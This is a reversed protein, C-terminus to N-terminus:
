EARVKFLRQAGPAAYNVEATGDNGAQVQGLSTWPGVVNNATEVRYFKSPQGHVRLASATGSLQITLGVASTADNPSTGATWEEFNSAGDGDNDLNADGAWNPNLGFATEFDNAMGDGDADTAISVIPLTLAMESTTGNADTTTASIYGSVPIANTLQVNFVANGSGPTNITASGIWRQGEGYNSVDPAANAYFDLTYTSNAQGNLSGSISTLFRGTAATLVPFKPEGATTPGDVGFDLALGAVGSGGNNYMSNGRIINGISGERVRIGDYNSSLVNAIRNGEGPNTGGIINRSSGNLLEVGHLFNGRPTLGDARLGIFNGRIVNGNANNVYITVNENGSLVNGAGAEAGGIYNTGARFLTVAGIINPIETQGTADTGVYNGQVKNQTAGPGSLYIGSNRNGSIINGGQPEPIGIQNRAANTLNIGYYANARAASGMVDTGIFNGAVINNSASTGYIFVGSNANSSIVNRALPTVGGVLNGPADIRVGSAGNGRGGPWNNPLLGVVNGQVVSFTGGALHVGNLTNGSIVNGAGAVEGGIVNSTGSIVTVGSLTNGLANSGTADLGIFNGLVVNAVSNSDIAVGSQKNGSIVNRAAPHTGGIFNRQALTLGVGTYRNGINTRGTVDTGLFNGEVRNHTVGNGTTTFLYVGREGNGSIVNRAGPETGGILNHTARFITVGDVTNSLAGAGDARVGIFNGCVWNNSAFADNIYIGSQGNGSIINRAAPTTGGIVNAPAGLLIGSQTNSLSLSGTIDTGILNGRVVTGTATLGAIWLGIQNGSLLNGEGANTGGIRNHRSNLLAIGAGLNPLRTAGNPSTGIFCGTVTNSHSNQFQLGSGGFRNIFLGRVESFGAVFGLGNATGASTGVLGVVPTGAYGPQTTGDIIVPDTIGPLGSTPTITHPGSGPINFSIVDVGNNINADEIAQRLSGPGADATTVVVYDAASAGFQYGTVCVLLLAAQILNTKM